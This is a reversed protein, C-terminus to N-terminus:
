AGSCSAPPCHKWLQAPARGTNAPLHSASALLQAPSAACQLRALASVSSVDRREATTDMSSGKSWSSQSAQCFNVAVAPM